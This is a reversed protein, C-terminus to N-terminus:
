MAQEFQVDVDFAIAADCTLSLAETLSDLRCDPNSGSGFVIQRSDNASIRRRFIQTGNPVVGSATKARVGATPLMGIDGAPVPAPTVTSALQAYYNYSLSGAVADISPVTGGVTLAIVGTAYNVVSSSVTLNSGPPLAGAVLQGAGNDSFIVVGQVFNATTTLAISLTGPVIGDAVNNCTEGPYAAVGAGAAAAEGIVPVRVEALVSSTGRRVVVTCAAAAALSISTIQVPAENPGNPGQVEFFVKDIVTAAVRYAASFKRVTAM